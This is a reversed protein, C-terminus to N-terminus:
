TQQLPKGADIIGFFHNFLYATLSGYIIGLMSGAVVDGPYHIGVYVQAFAITGAWLFVLLAWRSIVRRFSLFFFTAMGFHNAAHNSTFGYGSPCTVLLRLQGIFEANNCPRTRLFTYKFLKTGTMDCLSVTVLFFLIWWAGKVRFNLLVFVILFLYLPIWNLSNRMFPMVADFLPNAMGTNVAKFLSHDWQIINQWFGAILYDM